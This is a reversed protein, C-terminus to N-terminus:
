PIIATAENSNTSENSSSDVATTVYYYTTGTLVSTDTYSVLPALVLSSNIKAYGTGSVTSMTGSISFTPNSQATFNVGTLNAGTVTATQTSPNFTYGSRSPTIAYTGNALGTFTYNGTSDATTTASAAGSLTVPAGSGGATPSITGSISYTQPPPPSATSNQGSVVGSCGWVLIASFLGAVCLLARKTQSASVALVASASGAHRNQDSRM